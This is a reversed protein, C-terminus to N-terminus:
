QEGPVAAAMGSQVGANGALKNNGFTIISGGAFGLGNTTNNTVVTNSLRATAAGGGSAVGTANGSSLCNELNLESAAGASDVNFGAFLNGMSVCDRATVIGNTSVALGANGNDIFAVREFVARIPQSSGIIAVGSGNAGGASGCNNITTDSVYLKGGQSTRNDRIGQQTFNQIVVNQIVITSAAPNASPNVITIGRLGTNTGICPAVCSGVGNISINRITVRQQPDATTGQNLNITIGNVSSAIQGAFVGGGDVTISKTITLAGYSGADLANIEGNTLTKSIAGAFTRCPATCSCPDADNGVGSVWTRTSQAQVLSTFTLILVGIVLANFAIRFPKM